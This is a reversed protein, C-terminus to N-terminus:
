LVRVTIYVVETKKAIRAGKLPRDAFYSRWKEAADEDECGWANLAPVFSNRPRPIVRVVKFTSLLAERDAATWDLRLLSLLQPCDIIAAADRNPPGPHFCGALLM